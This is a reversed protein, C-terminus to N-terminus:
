IIYYIFARQFYQKYVHTINAIAANRTENKTKRNSNLIASLLTQPAFIENRGGLPSLYTTRQKNKIIIIILVLDITNEARAYDYERSANCGEPCQILQLFSFFSFVFVTSLNTACFTGLIYVLM